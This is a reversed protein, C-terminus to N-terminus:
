RLLAVGAEDRRIPEYSAANLQVGLECNAM